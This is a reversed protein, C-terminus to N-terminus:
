PGHGTALPSPDALAMMRRLLQEILEEKKTKHETVDWLNYFENPDNKLDYMEGWSVGSYLSLRWRETMLTIVVFNSPLGMYARRPNDEIIMSM